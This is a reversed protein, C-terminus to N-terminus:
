PRPGPTFGRDANSSFPFQRAQQYAQFAPNRPSASLEVPVPPPPLEYAGGQVGPTAGAAWHPPMCQQQPPCHGQLPQYTMFSGPSYPPTRSASHLPPPVVNQYHHPQYPHHAYVPAAVGAARCPDQGASYPSVVAAFPSHGPSSFPGGGGGHQQQQQKVDVPAANASLPTSGEGLRPTTPPNGAAAAGDKKSWPLLLGRSRSRRGCIFLLAGVLTLAATGGIAIGAIQGAGLASAQHQGTAGAAPTKPRATESPWADGPTLQLTAKRM